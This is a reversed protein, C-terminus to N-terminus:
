FSIADEHDDEDDHDGDDEIAKWFHLKVSLAISSLQAGSHPDNSFPIFRSAKSVDSHPGQAEAQCQCQGKGM